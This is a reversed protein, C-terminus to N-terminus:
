GRNGSVLKWTNLARVVDKKENGSGQKSSTIKHATSKAVEKM